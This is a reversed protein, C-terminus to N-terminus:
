FTGVVGVKATGTVTVGPEPTPEPDSPAVPPGDVGCAALAFLLGILSIRTM